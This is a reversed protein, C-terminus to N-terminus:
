RWLELKGGMTWQLDLYLFMDELTCAKSNFDFAHNIIKFASECFFFCYFYVCILQRLGYFCPLIQHINPCYKEYVKNKIKIYKKYIKNVNFM